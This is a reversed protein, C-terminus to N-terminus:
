AFKFSCIWWRSSWPTVRNAPFRTSFRNSFLLLIPAFRVHFISVISFSAANWRLINQSILFPFYKTHTIFIYIIHKYIYPGNPHLVKIEPLELFLLLFMSKSFLWFVWKQLWILYLSAWFIKKVNFKSQFHLQVFLLLLNFM